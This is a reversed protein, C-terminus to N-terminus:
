SMRSNPTKIKHNVNNKYIIFKRQHFLEDRKSDTVLLQDPAPLGHHTTSRPPAFSHAEILNPLGQLRRQAIAPNKRKIEKVVNEM